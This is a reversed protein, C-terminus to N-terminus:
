NVPAPPPSPLKSDIQTNLDDMGTMYATAMQAVTDPTYRAGHRDEFVKDSTNYHLDYAKLVHGIAAQRAREYQSRNQIAKNRQEASAAQLERYKREEEKDQEKLKRDIAADRQKKLEALEAEDEKQDQLRAAEMQNSYQTIFDKALFPSNAPIADTIHDLQAPEPAVVKDMAAVPAAAISAASGGASSLGKLTTALAALDATSARNNQALLQGVQARLLERRDPRELSTDLDMAKNTAQFVQEAPYMSFQPDASMDSWGMMRDRFRDKVLFDADLASSPSASNDTGANYLRRANGFGTNTAEQGSRRVAELAQVTTLGALGLGRMTQGVYSQAAKKHIGDYECQQVFDGFAAATKAFENLGKGYDAMFDKMDQLAQRDRILAATKRYVEKDPLIAASATKKFEVHSPMSDKLADRFLEGYYNNLTTFEYSSYASKSFYDALERTEDQVKSDLSEIMGSLVSVRAAHKELMSDIHQSFTKYDVTDEYLPRQYGSVSAAKQMPPRAIEFNFKFNADSLSAKKEQAEAEGTMLAHVRDSDSLPFPEARHEDATKRFTLVTLRKNFAQSAVKAFKADVNAEKLQNALLESRDQEEHLTALTAAKEIAGTLRASEIASIVQEM